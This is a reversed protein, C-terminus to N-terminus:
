DRLGLSCEELHTLLALALAIPAIALTCLVPWGVFPPPLQQFLHLAGKALCPEYVPSTLNTCNQTKLKFWAYWSDIKCRLALCM